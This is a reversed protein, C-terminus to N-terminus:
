KNYENMINEISTHNHFDNLCKEGHKVIMKTFFVYGMVILISVIVITKNDM